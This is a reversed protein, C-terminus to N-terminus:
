DFDYYDSGLTDLQYREWYTKKYQNLAPVLGDWGLLVAEPEPGILWKGYHLQVGKTQLESAVPKLKEPVALEEFEVSSFPPLYPGIATYQGDFERLVEPLKSTLVTHIGGVKNCVEWSVEFIRAAPNM